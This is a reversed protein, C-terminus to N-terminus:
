KGAVTAYQMFRIDMQTFLFPINFIIPRISSTGNIGEHTLIKYGQDEYMRRISKGTFFRLHTKDMVGHAKYKWEKKFILSLIAKYFRINPISSIVVGQKKLKPKVKKLVTYPDELHELIDNFYIVDFYNEPLEGILDECPGSFLNDLVKDAKDAEEKRYEIGWVEADTKEKIISGFSGDGCGIDIVTKVDEPLYELM